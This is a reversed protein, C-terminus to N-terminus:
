RGDFKLAHGLPDMEEDKLSTGVMAAVSSTIHVSNSTRVNMERLSPCNECAEFFENLTVNFVNKSHILYRTFFSFPM